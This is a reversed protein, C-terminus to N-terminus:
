EDKTTETTSSTGNAANTTTSEETDGGGCGMILTSGVIAGLVALLAFRNTKKM